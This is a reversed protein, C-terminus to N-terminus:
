QASRVDSAAGDTENSGADLADATNEMGDAGAELTEATGELVADETAEYGAEIAEAADEVEAAVMAELDVGARNFATWALVLAVLSIILAVWAVTSPKQEM